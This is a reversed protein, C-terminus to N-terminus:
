TIQSSPKFCDTKRGTKACLTSAHINFKLNRDINIGLLKVQNSEWIKIKGIKAYIHEYKHGSIIFHCKEENLKMYNNEFGATVIKSDHELNTILDNLNKRCDFLTTDDAYNCVRNESLEFFLDNIYINFLLPGLVSGQPVGLLLETLSSSSTNIKTRQWRNTLYSNMLLLSKVKCAIMLYVLIEQHQGSPGILIMQYVLGYIVLLM